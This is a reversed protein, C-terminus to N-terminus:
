PQNVIMPLYTFYTEGPPDAEEYNWIYLTGSFDGVSVELASDDDLNALAPTGKVSMNTQKPWDDVPTGNSHWAYVNADDSGIVVELDGDGDIDGISPSSLLDAGAIQPWGNVLSGNHHWAWLKDDDGGILIELDGNGDIDGTTPSSRVTWGTANRWILNGNMDLLYVYSDGSGFAIELGEVSPDIDAVSPTSLIMDGTMYTWRLTGDNNLVYLNKDTSGVIIELTGNGDLDAIQPSSNIVQSNYLDEVDGISVPWGSKSIGNADYAYVKGNALPTVIDLVNDNDLDAVSPTALM